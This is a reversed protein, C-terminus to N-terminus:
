RRARDAVDIAFEKYTVYDDKNTDIKKFFSRIKKKWFASKEDYTFNRKESPVDETQSAM